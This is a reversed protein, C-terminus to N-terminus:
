RIETHVSVSHLLQGAENTVDIGTDSPDGSRIAEAAMDHASASAEKLAAADDALLTGEDDAFLQRDHMRTHFYYRPM